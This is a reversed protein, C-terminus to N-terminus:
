IPIIEMGREVHNTAHSSQKEATAPNEAKRRTVSHLILQKPTNKFRPVAFILRESDSLLM